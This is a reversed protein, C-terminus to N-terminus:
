RQILNLRRGDRQLTVVLFHVEQKRERFRFARFFLAHSRPCDADRLFAQLRSAQMAGFERGGKGQLPELTVDGQHDRQLLANLSDPVDAGLELVGQIRHRQPSDARGILCKSM